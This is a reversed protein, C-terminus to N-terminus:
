SELQRGCGADDRERYSKLLEIPVGNAENGETFDTNM